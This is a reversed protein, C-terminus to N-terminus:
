WGARPGAACGIGTERLSPAARASARLVVAGSLRHSRDDGPGRDRLAPLDHRGSGGGRLHPPVGPLSRRRAPHGGGRGPQDGVDGWCGRTDEHASAVPDWEPRGHRSSQLAMQFAVFATAPVRSSESWAALSTIAVREAPYWRLLAGRRLRGRVLAIKVADGSAGLAYALGLEDDRLFSSDPGPDLMRAGGDVVAYAFAGPNADTLAQGASKALETAEPDSTVVAIFFPSKAGALTSPSSLVRLTKDFLFRGTGITMGDEGRSRLGRFTSYELRKFDLDDLEEFGAAEKKLTAVLELLEPRDAAYDRIRAATKVLVAQGEEPAGVRGLEAARRRARAAYALAVQRDVEDDRPQADYAAADAWTFSLEASAGELVGDADRLRCEVRTADGEEGGPIEVSLVLSLVQDAVLSGLDFVTSAGESRVRFPNPSTVSM